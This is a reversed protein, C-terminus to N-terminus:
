QCGITVLGSPLNVNCLWQPFLPDYASMSSVPQYGYPKAAALIPTFSAIVTAMCAPVNTFSGCHPAGPDTIAAIGPDTGTLNSPDPTFSASSSIDINHSAASYLFNQSLTDTSNGHSILFAYKIFPNSTSTGATVLLNQYAEVESASNVFLEGYAAGTQTLDTNNGYSTNHVFYTKALGNSYVEMGRGGNLFFINNEAVAQQAYSNFSFTDFIIGEGDSSPGRACNTGDVNDWAFDNSFYYHTGPVTDFTKPYWVNFGSECTASTQASNYSIDAIYAIYDSLDATFGSKHCGNAVDNAFVIHHIIANGSPYVSFCSGEGGTVTVEWGQIGWYNQDVRMGDQTSSTIKCADFTACRLWAVNNGADCAVTGWEGAFFNAADYATSATALLIDGCNVAHHPTLWPAKPSLGNNIDNGGTAAPALYYTTGVRPLITMTASASKTPDAVSTTQITVTAPYPVTAPAKYLGNSSITGCAPGSCGSGFVVWTLSTDSPGTVTATFQQTGGVTASASSPTVEVVVVPAATGTGNLGIIATENTSSNSSITLQGTAAGVATPDFQISLTAEQGPSLTVPLAAGPLTFGAGTLTAGNITVPMTGTSTLTVPQTAPTNVVVDGFAVSTANISLALIAANLQLTFNKVVSGATATMTVAQATAVPSVKAAFGASAASAPVTVTSPVTVASSSSSLNVVLGGSPASTTLTVTCADSGSGTMAGSSCSLASFAAAGTGTTGTGSLSIVPTSTTSLNSAIILQGTTTGAAVPKFQVNLSYTGGAAITVPLNISGDISFSQGTLNFQTIQIPAFSGNSLSIRTSATQGISVVGFTVTNPSATLAGTGTGNLVIDGCGSLAFPLWCSSIILLGKRWRDPWSILDRGHAAPQKPRSCRNWLSSTYKRFESDSPTRVPVGYM